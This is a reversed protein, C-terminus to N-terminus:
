IAPRNSGGPPKSLVKSKLAQLVAPRFCCTGGSRERESAETPIVSNDVEGEKM